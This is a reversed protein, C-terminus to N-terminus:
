FYVCGMPSSEPSLSPESAPRWLPPRGGGLPASRRRGRGFADPRDGAWYHGDLAESPLAQRKPARARAEEEEMQRAHQLRTIRRSEVSATAAAAGGAQAIRPPPPPPPSPPPPAVLAPLRTATGDRRRGFGLQQAEAQVDQLFSLSALLARHPAPAPAPASAPAPPLAQAARQHGCARAEAEVHDCLRAYEGGRQQLEAIAPLLDRATHLWV